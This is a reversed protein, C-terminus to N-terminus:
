NLPKGCRACFRHEPAAGQGCYPCFRSVPASGPTRAEDGSFSSDADDDAAFRAALPDPEEEGDVIDVISPRNKATASYFGGFANVLAIAIFAVGFIAMFGAGMAVAAFTWVVGVGAVLLGVVGEMM